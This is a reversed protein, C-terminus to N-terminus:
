SSIRRRTSKVWSLRMSCLSAGCFKTILVSLIKEGRKGIDDELTM